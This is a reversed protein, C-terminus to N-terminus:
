RAQPPDIDEACVPGALILQQPQGGLTVQPATAHGLALKGARLAAIADNCRVALVGIDEWETGHQKYVHAAISSTPYPQPESLLVEPAGDGDVDAVEAECTATPPNSLCPLSEDHVVGEIPWQPDSPAYVPGNWAQKVFTDPLATGDPYAKFRPPPASPPAEGQSQSALSQRARTAIAAKPSAALTQLAALGYRGAHFRLFDFDFQALPARGSTLRGVQDDVSLRQPDAIPTLLLLILLMAARAMVVNTLELPKMWPGQRRLAAIAYGVAFGASMLTAAIAMVRAPTLGHESVRLFLADAAILTLPVLAIGAARAAWCLVLTPPSTGDQYAASTLVILGAAAALVTSAGSAAGFLKGLGTFPLAMLFAVVIATLVPLLWSLLVLAVTRVGRILGVRVDTLQVAGAFVLGSVPLFFWNQA